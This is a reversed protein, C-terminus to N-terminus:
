SVNAMRRSRGDAFSASTVSNSCNLRRRPRPARYIGGQTLGGRRRGEEQRRGGGRRIGGGAGARM